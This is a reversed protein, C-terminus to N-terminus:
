IHLNSQGPIPVPKPQEQKPRNQMMMTKCKSCSTTLVGAKDVHLNFHKNGCKCKLRQGYNVPSTRVVVM